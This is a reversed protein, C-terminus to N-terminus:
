LPSVDLLVNIASGQELLRRAKAVNDHPLDGRGYIVTARMAM